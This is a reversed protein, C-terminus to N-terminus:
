DTSTVPYTEIRNRGRAKAAMLAEDAQQVLQDLAGQEDGSELSLTAIGISITVRFPTGDPSQCVMAEIVGRIREAVETASRLDTEPLILLFEEGGYRGVFDTGRLAGTLVQAVRKLTIDGTPHGFNDNVLKFFDMDAMGVALPRGYRTARRIEQALREFVAERRLMGTLSDYTASEYLRANEFVMGVHRALFSLMDVQEARFQQGSRKRGVLLLGSLAQAGFLPVVIATGYHELLGALRTEKATIREVPLPRQIKSLLEIGPDQRSIILPDGAPIPEDAHVVAALPSLIGTAPDLSLVAASRLEFIEQLQAVLHRGMRPVKGHAPLQSALDLLQQRFARQEPFFRADVMHQFVERLPQFVLGLVLATGAFLWISSTGGPLLRTLLFSGAGLSGYFILVLAGTLASYMLGKRVVVQIDFLQYRYMAIFIAVPFPFVILPWYTELWEPLPLGFLGSTSTYLAYLLWPSTGLLVLLAQHRGLPTPYRIAQTGLLLLLSLAWVPFLYYDIIYGGFPLAGLFSQWGLVFNLITLAAYVGLGIGVVYFLRILWPRRAIWPHVDPISSALHLETAFQLGTFLYFLVGTALEVMPSGILSFPPLAFEFAIAATFMFLLLKRTDPPPLLFALIGIGLYALVIALSEIFEGWPFEVGPRITFTLTEDGRRVQLQAPQGAQYGAAARDYESNSSVPQGNVAVIQDGVLLGGREAPLGPTVGTIRLKNEILIGVTHDARFKRGWWQSFVLLTAFATVLIVATIRLKHATAKGDREMSM